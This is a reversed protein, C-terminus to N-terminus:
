GVQPGFLEARLSAIETIALVEYTLKWEAIETDLESLYAPDAETSDHSAELRETTVRILERRADTASTM